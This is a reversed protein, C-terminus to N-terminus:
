VPKDWYVAKEPLIWRIGGRPEAVDGQYRPILHIHLHPVTQGAVAGDNIGINYGDPQYQVQLEAKVQTLVQLFAQQEATTAEFWSAYHRRPIILSHGRSVPFKDRIAFVLEDCYVLQQTSHTALQCFPCSTVLM